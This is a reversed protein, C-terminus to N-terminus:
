SSISGTTAYRAKDEGRKLDYGFPAGSSRLADIISDIAGRASRGSQRNDVANRPHGGVNDLVVVLAEVEERDLVLTVSEVTKKLVVNAKAM